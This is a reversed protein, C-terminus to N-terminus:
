SALRIFFSRRASRRHAAGANACCDMTTPAAM